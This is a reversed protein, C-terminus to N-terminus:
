HESAEPERGLHNRDRDAPVQPISRRVPVHFLQQSLAADGDIVDRDVPPDLAKRRLERLGSARTPVNGPVPPEDILGVQLDGAPPGAHVACDVLVTLDDADPSGRPTVQCSDPAEEGPRQPGARDRDLDRGAACGDVRPHEVLQDGRRQVDNLLVRIIRDLCVV